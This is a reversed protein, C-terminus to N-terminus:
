EDKIVNAFVFNLATICSLFDKHINVVLTNPSITISKDGISKNPCQNTDSLIYVIDILNWKKQYLLKKMNITRM